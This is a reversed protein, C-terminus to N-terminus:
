GLSCQWCLVGGLTLVLNPFRLVCLVLAFAVLRYKSEPLLLPLTVAEKLLRKADKLGVVDDFSVGTSRHMIDREVTVALSPDVGELLTNDEQMQQGKWCAKGSKGPNGLTGKQPHTTKSGGGSGKLRLPQQPTASRRPVGTHKHEGPLKAPCDLEFEKFITKSRHAAVGVEGDVEVVAGLADGTEEEFHAFLRRGNVHIQLDDDDASISVTYFRNSQLEDDLESAIINKGVM